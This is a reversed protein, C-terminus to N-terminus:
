RVRNNKALRLFGTEGKETGRVGVDLLVASNGQDIDRVTAPAGTNNDGDDKHVVSPKFDSM